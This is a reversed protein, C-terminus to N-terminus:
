RGCCKKFKKGSGCVCPENRGRPVGPRVLHPPTAQGQRESGDPRLHMPGPLLGALLMRASTDRDTM